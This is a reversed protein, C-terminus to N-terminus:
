FEDCRIRWSNGRHQGAFQEVVCHDAVKARTGIGPHVERIRRIRLRMLELHDNLTEAALDAPHYSALGAFRTSISPRPLCRRNPTAEFRAPAPVGGNRSGVPCVTAFGALVRPEFASSM